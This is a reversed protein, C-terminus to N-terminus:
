SKVFVVGQKLWDKVTSAALVARGHLRAMARNPFVLFDVMPKPAARYHSKYPEDGRLFDFRDYGEEIARKTVLLHALRGPSEDLRNTDIGCQYTFVTDPSSFHYEATFPAGDFEVWSMRLQGTALLRSTVERHFEYFQNSAFCGSEGLGTRRRQHLDVLVKWAQELQNPNTAVHWCSRGSCVKRDYCQRLRRRHPRSLSALYEDWTAPLDIIWCTEAQKGSVLSDRAELEGVLLAMAEDGKDVALLELRDWQDNKTTVYEAITSAVGALHDPHYLISQHDTCVEGSGLPRLINGHMRTRELYWPALGVLTGQANEADDVVGIVYLSREGPAGYHKWWTALWDWSRMPMGAALANWGAELALLEAHTTILRVKM